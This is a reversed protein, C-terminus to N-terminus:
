LESLFPLGEEERWETNGVISFIVSASLHKQQLIPWKQRSVPHLNPLLFFLSCQRNLGM